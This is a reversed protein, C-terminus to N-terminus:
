PLSVQEFTCSSRISTRKGVSAIFNREQTHFRNTRLETLADHFANQKRVSTSDELILAQLKVASRYRRTHRQDFQDAAIGVHKPMIWWAPALERLSTFSTESCRNTSSLCGASSSTSLPQLYVVANDTSRMSGHNTGSTKKHNTRSTHRPHQSRVNPTVVPFHHPAIKSGQSRTRRELDPATEPRASPLSDIFYSPASSSTHM